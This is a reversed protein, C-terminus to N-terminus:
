SRCFARAFYGTQWFGRPADLTRVRFVHKGPTHCYAEAPFKRDLYRQQYSSSNGQSAGVPRFYMGPSFSRMLPECAWLLHM